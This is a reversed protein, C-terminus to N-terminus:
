YGVENEVSAPQGDCRLADPTASWNLTKRRKFLRLPFSFDHRSLSARLRDVTRSFVFHLGAWNSETGFIGSFKGM